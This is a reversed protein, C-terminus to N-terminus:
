SRALRLIEIEGNHADRWPVTLIHEFGCKRTMNKMSKMYSHSVLQKIHPYTMFFYQACQKIATRLIRKGKRDAAVHCVLSDGMQTISIYAIKGESQYMYFLSLDNHPIGLEMAPTPDWMQTIM